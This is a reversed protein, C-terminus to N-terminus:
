GFADVYASIRSYESACKSFYATAATNAAIDKQASLLERNQVMIREALANGEQIAHCMARQLNILEDLRNIIEDLRSIIRNHRAEDDYLVYAGDRGRLSNCKGLEFYECITVVPVISQYPESIVNLSYLQSLMRDHEQIHAVCKNREQRLQAICKQRYLYAQEEEACAKKYATKADANKIFDILLLIGAIIAGIVVMDLVTDGFDEFYNKGHDMSNNYKNDNFIASCGKFVAIVAGIVAAVFIIVPSTAFLCGSKPEDIKKKYNLKSIESDIKAVIQQITFKEVELAKANKLFELISSYSLQDIVAMDKESQLAVEKTDSALRTGCAFCYAANHDNKQGCNSCYM